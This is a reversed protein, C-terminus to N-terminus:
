PKDCRFFEIFKNKLKILIGFENNEIFSLANAKEAANKM